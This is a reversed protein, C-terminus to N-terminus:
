NSKEDLSVSKLEADSIELFHQLTVRHRKFHPIYDEANADFLLDVIVQDLEFM